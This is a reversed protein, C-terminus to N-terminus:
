VGYKDKECLLYMQVRTAMKHQEDTLEEELISYLKAEFESLASQLSQARLATELEEKEKPLNFSLQVKM